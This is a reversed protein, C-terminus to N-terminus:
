AQRNLLALTREDREGDYFADLARAFLSDPEIVDFLTLCSRLKM